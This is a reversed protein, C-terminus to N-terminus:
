SSFLLREASGPEVNSFLTREGCFVFRLVLESHSDPFVFRRDSREVDVRTSVLAGALIRDILESGSLLFDDRLSTLAGTFFDSGACFEVLTCILSLRRLVEFGSFLVRTFLSALEFGIFVLTLREVPVGLDVTSGFGAAFDFDVAAGALLSCRLDEDVWGEDFLLSGDRM